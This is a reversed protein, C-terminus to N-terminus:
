RRELKRLVDPPPTDLAPNRAFFGDPVLTFGARHVPMVPWDEVRPVHTIGFTYWVVVDTNVIPADNAAFRPLGDGGRGQNPYRGAADMEDARYRTVWLAYDIFGGRRRAPATTALHPRASEGPVITYGVPYGRPGVVAPNSSGGCGIGM